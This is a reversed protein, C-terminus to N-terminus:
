NGAAPWGAAVGAPVPAPTLWSRATLGRHVPTGAAGTGPKGQVRAVRSRCDCRGPGVEWETLPRRGPDVKLPPSCTEDDTGARRARRGARWERGPPTRAPVPDRRRWVPRRM